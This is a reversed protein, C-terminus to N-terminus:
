VDRDLGLEVLPRRKLTRAFGGRADEWEARSLIMPNVERDLERGAARTARRVAAVEPTGVVLLDVDAPPDGPEGLYRAAWSGYLFAQEIGDIDALRRELVTTPGFAKLLLSNLEPYFPSEPNARVIRSTGVRDSVVIGAKELRDLEESVRSKAVGIEEALRSLHVDDEQHLFLRALLRAQGQSRFLPLLPPPSTRMFLVITGAFLM